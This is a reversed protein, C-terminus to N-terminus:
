ERPNNMYLFVLQDVTKAEFLVYQYVTPLFGFVALLTGLRESLSTTEFLMHQFVVLLPSIDTLLTGLREDLSITKLSM